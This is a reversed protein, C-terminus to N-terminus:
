LTKLYSWGIFAKNFIEQIIYGYGYGAKSSNIIIAELRPRFYNAYEKDQSILRKTISRFMSELSEYYESYDICIGKTQETGVEVFHIM